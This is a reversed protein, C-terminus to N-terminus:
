IRTSQKYIQEKSKKSSYAPKKLTPKKMLGEHFPGAIIFGFISNVAVPKADREGESPLIIDKTMIQYYYRAGLLIDISSESQPLPDALCLNKLHTCEELNIDLSEFSSCIDGKKVHGEILIRENSKEDVPGIYAKM